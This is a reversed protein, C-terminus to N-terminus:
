DRKTFSALPTSINAEKSFIVCYNLYSESLNGLGGECLNKLAAFKRSAPLAEKEIDEEEAMGNHLFFAAGAIVAVLGVLNRSSNIQM